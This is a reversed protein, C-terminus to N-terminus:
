LSLRRQATCSSSCSVEVVLGPPRRQLLELVFFRSSGKRDKRGEPAGLRWSMTPDPADPVKVRHYSPLFNVPFYVGFTLGLVVCLVCGSCWAWAM